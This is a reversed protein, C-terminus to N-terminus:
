VKARAVVRSLVLAFVRHILETSDLRHRLELGQAVLAVADGADLRARHEGLQRNSQATNVGLRM